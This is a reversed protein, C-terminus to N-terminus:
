DGEEVKMRKAEPPSDDDHDNETSPSTWAHDARSEWLTRALLWRADRPLSSLVKKSIFLICARRCATVRNCWDIDEICITADDSVFPNLEVTWRLNQRVDFMHSITGRVANRMVRYTTAEPGSRGYKLEERLVVRLRTGPITLRYSILFRLAEVVSACYHFLFGDEPMSQHLVRTTLIRHIPLLGDVVCGTIAEFM